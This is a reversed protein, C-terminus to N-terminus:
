PNNDAVESNVDKVRSRSTIYRTRKPDLAEVSGPKVQRGSFILDIGIM